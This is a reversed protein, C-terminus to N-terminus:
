SIARYLTVLMSVYSERSFMGQEPKLLEFQTRQEMHRRAIDAITMEMGAMPEDQCQVQCQDSLGHATARFVSDLPTADEGAAVSLHGSFANVAESGVFSRFEFLVSLLSKVPRSRIPATFRFRKRLQSCYEHQCLVFRMSRSSPPGPPLPTAVVLSAEGPFNLRCLHRGRQQSRNRVDRVGGVDFNDICSAAQVMAPRRRSIYAYSFMPRVSLEAWFRCIREAASFVRSVRRDRSARTESGHHLVGAFFQELRIVFACCQQSNGSTGLPAHVVPRKIKTARQSQAVETQALSTYIDEFVPFFVKHSVSLSTQRLTADRANDAMGATVDGRGAKDNLVSWLIQSPGERNSVECCNTNHDLFGVISGTFRAVRKTIPCHANGHSYGTM